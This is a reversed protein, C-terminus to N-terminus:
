GRPKKSITIRLFEDEYKLTHSNEDDPYKYLACSFNILEQIFKTFSPPFKQGHYQKIDIVELTHICAEQLIHELTLYKLDKEKPHKNLIYDIHYRQCNAHRVFSSVSGRFYQNIKENLVLRIRDFDLM